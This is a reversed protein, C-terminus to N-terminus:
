VPLEAFGGNESYCVLQQSVVDSRVFLEADAV